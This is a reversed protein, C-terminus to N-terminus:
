KEHCSNWGGSAYGSDPLQRPRQTSPQASHRSHNACAYGVLVIKEQVGHGRQSRASCPDVAHKYYLCRCVSYREVIQICMTSRYHRTQPLILLLKFALSAFCVYLAFNFLRLLSPCHQFHRLDVSQWVKYSIPLRLCCTLSYSSIYSIRRVQLFCPRVLSPM